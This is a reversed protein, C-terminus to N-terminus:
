THTNVGLVPFVIPKSVFSTSCLTTNALALFPPSFDQIGALHMHIWGVTLITPM